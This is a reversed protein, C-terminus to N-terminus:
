WEWVPGLTATAGQQVSSTGDLARRHVFNGLDQGVERLAVGVGGRLQQRQDVVLQAPEGGGTQGGLRGAVGQLRGRQDVFRVVPQNACGLAVPPVMAAVEKGGRSLGHSADKDFGCAALLGGLVAAPQVSVLGVVQGDGRRRDIVVEDREVLREGAEGLDLRLLDFQHFEAIEHPQGNLLGHFSEANGRRRRLPV